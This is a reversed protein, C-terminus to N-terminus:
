NDLVSDNLGLAWINVVSLSSLCAPVAIDVVTAAAGGRREERGGKRKRRKEYLAECQLEPQSQVCM